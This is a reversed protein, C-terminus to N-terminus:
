CGEIVERWKLEEKAKQERTLRRNGRAWKKLQMIYKETDCCIFPACFCPYRNPLINRHSVIYM